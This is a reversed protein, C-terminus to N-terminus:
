GGRRALSAAAQAASGSPPLDIADSLAENETGPSPERSEPIQQDDFVMLHSSGAPDPRPADSGPPPPPPANLRGSLARPPLPRADASDAKRVIVPPRRNLFPRAQDDTLTVTGGVPVLDNPDDDKRGRRPVSLNALALYESGATAAPRPM